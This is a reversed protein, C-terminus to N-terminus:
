LSQIRTRSERLASELAAHLHVEGTGTQEGDHYQLQSGRKDSLPTAKGTTVTGAIAIKKNNKISSM